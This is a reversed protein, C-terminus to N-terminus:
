SSGMTCHGIYIQKALYIFFADESIEWSHLESLIIFRFFILCIFQINSKATLSYERQM